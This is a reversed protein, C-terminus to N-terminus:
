ALNKKAALIMWSVGFKDAVMGFSDAFFTEMLPMQAQGGEGLAAFLKNAETANPVNLTLSFGDFKPQSVAGGDSAMLETDRIRVNAHMVKDDMGPGCNAKAQPDPSDKFRMLFTVEAGLTKQYFNLAEECRGNFFLYPQIYM